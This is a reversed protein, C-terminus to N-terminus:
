ILANSASRPPAMCHRRRRRAIARSGSMARTPAHPPPDASLSGFGAALGAGASPAAPEPWTCAPPGSPVM